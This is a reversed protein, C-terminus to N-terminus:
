KKFRLKRLDGSRIAAYSNTVYEDWEDKNFIVHEKNYKNWCAIYGDVGTHSEIILNEVNVRQTLLWLRVKSEFEKIEKRTVSM